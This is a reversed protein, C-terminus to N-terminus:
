AIYKNEYMKMDARHMLDRYSQDIEYNVVASGVAVGITFPLAESEKKLLTNLLSLRGEFLDEDSDNFICAFEDGGIRFCEGRDFAEKISRYGIILAEDGATHGFQDNIFKLKNFDFIILRWNENALAKDFHHSIAKDFAMRNGSGTLRDEFALKEYLEAWYSKKVIAIMQRVSDVSQAMLFFMLGIKTFHTSKHFNQTYFDLIEIGVFFVFPLLALIFRSTKKNRYKVIETM